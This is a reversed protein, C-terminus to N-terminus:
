MPELPMGLVPILCVCIIALAFAAAMLIQEGTPYDRFRM